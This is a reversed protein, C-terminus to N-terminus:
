TYFLIFLTGVLMVISVMIRAGIEGFFIVNKVTDPPLVYMNFVFTTWIAYAYHLSHMEGQDGIVESNGMGLMFIVAFLVICVGIAIVFTNQEFFSRIAGWSWRVLFWWVVTFVGAVIACQIITQRYNGLTRVINSEEMVYKFKEEVQWFILRTVIGYTIVGVFIQMLFYVITQYETNGKKM